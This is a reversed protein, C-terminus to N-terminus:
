NLAEAVAPDKISFSYSKSGTKAGIILVCMLALMVIRKLM